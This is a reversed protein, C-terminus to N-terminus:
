NESYVGVKMRQFLPEGMLEYIDVKNQECIIFCKNMMENLESVKEDSYLSKQTELNIYDSFDDDPHFSLNEENVLQFAFLKVEEITNVENIM